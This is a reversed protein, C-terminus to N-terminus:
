DSVPDEKEIPPGKRPEPVSQHLIKEIERTLSSLDKSSKVLNPDQSEELQTEGARSSYTFVAFVFLVFWVFVPTWEISPPNKM